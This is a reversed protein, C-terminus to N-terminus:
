SVTRFRASPKADRLAEFLRRRETALEAPIRQTGPMVPEATDGPGCVAVLTVLRPKTAKPTNPVRLVQFRVRDGGRRAANRAMWLVDWLRGAEDQLARNSDNWVVSDAFVGVTIAVPFVFGAERATDTVDVLVGDEIAQSRTYVSILDADTFLPHSECTTTV